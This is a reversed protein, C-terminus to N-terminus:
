RTSSPVPHAFVPASTKAQLSFAVRELELQVRALSDELVGVQGQTQKLGVMITERKKADM